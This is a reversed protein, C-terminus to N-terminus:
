WTVGGAVESERAPGRGYPGGAQVGKRARVLGRGRRRGPGAERAPRRGPEGKSVQRQNGTQGKRAQFFGLPGSTAPPGSCPELRGRAPAKLCNARAGALHPAHPSQRMELSGPPFPECSRGQGQGAGLLVVMPAAATPLMPAHAPGVAGRQEEGKHTSGCGGRRTRRHRKTGRSYCGV